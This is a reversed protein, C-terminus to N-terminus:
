GGAELTCAHPYTSAHLVHVVREGRKRRCLHCLLGL